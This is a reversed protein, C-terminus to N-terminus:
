GQSWDSESNEFYCMKLSTEAKDEAFLVTIEMVSFMLKNFYLWDLFFYDKKANEEWTVEIYVYM